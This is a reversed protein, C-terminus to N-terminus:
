KIHSPGAEDSIDPPPHKSECTPAPSEPKDKEEVSGVMKQNGTWTVPLGESDTFRSM